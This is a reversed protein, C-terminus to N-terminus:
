FCLYVYILLKGVLIQHLQYTQCLYIKVLDPATFLESVVNTIGYRQYESLDFNPRFQRIDCNRPVVAVNVRINREKKLNDVFCKLDEVNEFLFTSMDVTPIAGEVFNVWEKRLVNIQTILPPFVEGSFRHKNKNFWEYADRISPDNMSIKEIKANLMDRVSSKKVELMRKESAM